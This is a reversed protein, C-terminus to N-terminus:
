LQCEIYIYIQLINHQINKFFVMSSRGSVNMKFTQKSYMIYALKLFDLISPLFYISFYNGGRSEWMETEGCKQELFCDNTSMEQLYM